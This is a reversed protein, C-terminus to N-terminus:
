FLFKFFKSKLMKKSLKTYIFLTDNLIKTSILQFTAILISIACVFVIKISYFITKLIEIRTLFDGNKDYLSNSLNIGQLEAQYFNLLYDGNRVDEIQEYELSNDDVLLYVIM